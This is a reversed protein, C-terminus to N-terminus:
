VRSTNIGYYKGNDFQRAIACYCGARLYFIEAEFDKRGVLNRERPISNAFLGVELDRKTGVIHRCIGVQPPHSGAVGLGVGADPVFFSVIGGIDTGFAVLMAFLDVCREPTRPAVRYEEVGAVKHGVSRVMGIGCCGYISKYWIVVM